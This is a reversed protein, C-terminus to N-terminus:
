KDHGWGKMLEGLNYCMLEVAFRRSRESMWGIPVREVIRRLVDRSVRDLRGLAARFLGPHHESARRVLALPSLGRRDTPQWYIAGPAKEAYRAIQGEELMRHRSKGPGADLLERGLSSAHDYTPALMVLWGGSTHKRLIGWNEHHRDTNGILADLVLYGALQEKARRAGDCTDFADELAAFINNLTHDSQGFRKNLDYGMLKGALVQNGHHLERGERAFSETASGPVTQFRALEVRAHLIDLVDAVEAAIKEAWHQGTNPQPYKFLWDTASDTERFWFKEKSGMAEEELVWDPEIKLVKYPSDVAEIM